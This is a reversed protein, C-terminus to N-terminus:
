PSWSRVSLMMWITSARVGSAGGPLRPMESKRTGFNRGSASPRGIALRLETCLAAGIQQDRHDLRPAGIETDLNCRDPDLHMAPHAVDLLGARRLIQAVGADRRDVLAGVADLGVIQNAALETAVLALRRTLQNGLHPRAEGFQVGTLQPDYALPQRICGGREVGRGHM